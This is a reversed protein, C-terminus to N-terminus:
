TQPATNPFVKHYWIKFVGCLYDILQNASYYGNVKLLDINVGLAWLARIAGFADICEIENQSLQRISNYGDFFAKYEESERFMPNIFAETNFIHVSIDHSRWGYGMTDFDFFAPTEKQFFVNGPQIDGHCFGYYPKETTLRDAIFIRLNEMAHCIFKYEDPSQSDMLPELKELPKDILQVFDIPKRSIKYNKEDSVTHMKAIAEGLNFAKKVTDNSPVNKVEAFLVAYRIGEPANLSWVFKRDKCLIPAATNVGSENLSNIIYAEEEYDSLSYINTLYIKLFYTDNGTSIKYVDSMGKRFLLCKLPERFHYKKILEETLANPDVQSYHVKFYKKDM